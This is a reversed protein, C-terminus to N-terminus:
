ATESKLEGCRRCSTIGILTELLHGDKTALCRSATWWVRVKGSGIDADHHFSIGSAGHIKCSYERVLPGLHAEAYSLEDLSTSPQPLPKIRWQKDQWEIWCGCKYSARAFHQQGGWVGSTEACERIAIIDAAGTKPEPLAFARWRCMQPLLAGSERLEDMIRALEGIHNADRSDSALSVYGNPQGKM